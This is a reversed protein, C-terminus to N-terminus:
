NDSVPRFVRLSLFAFMWTDKEQVPTSLFVHVKELSFQFKILLNQHDASKHDMFFDDPTVDSIDHSGVNFWHRVHKPKLSVHFLLAHCGIVESVRIDDAEIVM